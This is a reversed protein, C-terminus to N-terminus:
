APLLAAAHGELRHHVGLSSDPESPNVAPSVCARVAVSYQGASILWSPLHLACLVTISHQVYWSGRGGVKAGLACLEEVVALGIGQLVVFLFAASANIFVFVNYSIDRILRCLLCPYKFIAASTSSVQLNHHQHPSTVLM